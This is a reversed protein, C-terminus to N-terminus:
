ISCTFYATQSKVCAKEPMKWDHLKSRGANESRANEIGGAPPQTPRNKTKSCLKSQQQGIKLFREGVTKQSFKRMSTIFMSM